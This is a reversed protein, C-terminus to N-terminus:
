PEGLKAKAQDVLLPGGVRGTLNPAAPDRPPTPTKFDPAVHTLVQQPTQPTPQPTGGGGGGFCM